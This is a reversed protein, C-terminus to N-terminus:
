AQDDVVEISDNIAAIETGLGTVSAAFVNEYKNLALLAAGVKNDMLFKKRDEAKTDEPFLKTVNANGNADKGDFTIGFPQISGAGPQGMAVSFVADGKDTKVTLQDPHFKALNAIDDAKLSSTVVYANALVKIKAM